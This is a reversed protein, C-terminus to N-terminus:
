KATTHRPATMVTQCARLLQSTIEGGYRNLYMDSRLKFEQMPMVQYRPPLENLTLALVDRRCRECTCLGFLRIYKDALVEALQEMVNILVPGEPEEVAPAPPEEVAPAPPEEVAPAPPEEVAPAPPGEVVPAPPGEVAPAPPGEVAPAPPEEEVPAPPGEELAQTLAARIQSSVEADAHLATIIPAPQAARSAAAEQSVPAGPPLPAAPDAQPQVPVPDSKRLLNMVHATKNSNSTGKSSSM